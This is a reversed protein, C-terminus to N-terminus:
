GLFSVKPFSQIDVSWYVREERGRFCQKAAEYDAPTLVVITVLYTWVVILLRAVEACDDLSPLLISEHDM